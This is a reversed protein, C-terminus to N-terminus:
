PLEDDKVGILRYYDYGVKHCQQHAIRMHGDIEAEVHHNGWLQRGCYWCFKVRPKTDVRVGM